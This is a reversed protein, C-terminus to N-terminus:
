LSECTPGDPNCGVIECTRISSISQRFETLATQILTTQDKVKLVDEFITINNGIGFYSSAIAQFFVEKVGSPMDNTVIPIGPTVFVDWNLHDSQTSSAQSEVTKASVANSESEM